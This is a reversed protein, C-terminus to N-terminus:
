LAFAGFFVSSPSLLLHSIGDTHTSLQDGQTLLFVAGQYVSRVWPGQPGPCVSKQASLLPVHFPYQSSFLQVEHALYLPTPTAKPFCGEGSFVVQSYVFYLGSTPVLLSNNSLSFGHRLFARDTNARWRLSNQTSPDGLFLWLPHSLDLLQPDATKIGSSTPAPSPEQPSPQSSLHSLSAGTKPPPSLQPLPATSAQNRSPTYSSLQPSHTQLALHHKGILHAAPKLTGQAFHKQPHQYTTRAASPSIGVGPLGQAEPPLALLLGLLLLLLPASCVRLLYLRGPPTM